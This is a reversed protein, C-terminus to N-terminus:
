PHRFMTLSFVERLNPGVALRWGALGSGMAIKVKPKHGKVVRGGVGSECSNTNM